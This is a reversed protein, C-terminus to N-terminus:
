AGLRWVFYKQPIRQEWERLTERLMQEARKKNGKAVYGTAIWKPKRKGNSDIDGIRLSSRFEEFIVVDQQQYGDFPYGAAFFV